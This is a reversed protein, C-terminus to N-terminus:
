RTTRQPTSHRRRGPRFGRRDIGDDSDNTIYNTGTPRTNAHDDFRQSDRDRHESM